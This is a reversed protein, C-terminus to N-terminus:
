KQMSEFSAYIGEVLRQTVLADEGTLDPTTGKKIAEYFAAIQKAHSVGWYHKIGFQAQADADAKATHRTDGIIVEAEDGTITARGHEGIIELQVPADYPHYTNVHFSVPIETGHPTNYFIVGEAVDEVEIQPHARNAITADVRTPAGLFFNMLDFTHISQNILVGGGETAKRGRWDSCTYYSEGRYWNVRFWGGHIAGLAGSALTEKVLLSGPNYRNQFIVSLHRGTQQAVENMRQADELTTALPKECLVHYGARLADMAVPAHLFHPLCIHLIDFGGRALMERYDTFAVAGFKEAAVKAKGEDKDCVAVISIGLAELAMTHMPAVGGLGVVGAKLYTSMM